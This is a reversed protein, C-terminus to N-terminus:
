NSDVPRDVPLFMPLFMSFVPLFVAQAQRLISEKATGGVHRGSKAPVVLSSRRHHGGREAPSVANSNVAAVIPQFFPKLPDYHSAGEARKWAQGARAVVIDLSPMVVILSDYLGWTWYTDRPVGGITEDANNWWLLGYHNAANGYEAPNRGPL